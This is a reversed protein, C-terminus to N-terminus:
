FCSDKKSSFKRESEVKEIVKKVPGNFISSVVVAMIGFCFSEAFM